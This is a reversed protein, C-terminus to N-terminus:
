PAGSPTEDDRSRRMWRWHTAFLGIAVILMVLQTVLGKRARFTQQTIRSTRLAEFRLRLTAMSTTDRSGIDGTTAAFRQHTAMYADFSNLSEDSGGAAALPNSLDIASNLVGGICILATVVAVLCVMYGYLQRIRNSKDMM